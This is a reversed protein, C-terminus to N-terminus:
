DSLMEIVELMEVEEDSVTEGLGQMRRYYMRAFEEPTIVKFAYAEAKSMKSTQSTNKPLNGLVLYKENVWTKKINPFFRWGVSEVMAKLDDRKIWNEDKAEGLYFTGTFVFTAM